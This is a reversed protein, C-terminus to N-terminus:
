AEAFAESARRRPVEVVPPEPADDEANESANASIAGDSGVQDFRVQVRKSVGREQMTVGYLQDAHRMTRKNHTIVIFHSLDLFQRLVGNFREVNAEDLAADVEDLVCFPSPKSEFISMLLAVATMTKEGGSLQSLARPEKGPPKALVEVGSELWDIEGTEENPILRVEARGGGFIKRFMGNPGGFSAQIAEFATKFRERSVDALETILTTLRDRAADLDAVQQALDENKSELDLEEDLAGLNINGLKKIESQLDKIASQQADEDIPESEEREQSWLPLTSALDLGLDELTREELNEVRVEVERRALEVSTWDREVHQAAERAAVVRESRESAERSAEDFRTVADSFLSAAEDVEVRASEIAQTCETLTREHEAIREARHEISRALRDAAARTEDLSLELSRQERQASALKERLSGAAVRATSLREAAHEADRQLSEVEGRLSDLGAREEDLLGALREASALADERHKTLSAIREDGERSEAKAAAAQREMREVEARLREATSDCSAQLRRAEVGTKRASDRDADIAESRANLGSLRERLGDAVARHDALSVELDDLEARTRLLGAGADTASAAGLVVRGDPEVVEGARTVFRMSRAPGAALMLASELDHVVLTDGLLADVAGALREDVRLMDFAPTARDAPLGLSAFRARREAHDASVERLPLLTLRGKIQRLAPSDAVASPSEVVVAQLADGLAAEVAAAHATDVSIFDPLAGLVREFGEEDADRRDLAAKAADGLGARSEILEELTARRSEVRAIEREAEALREALSRSDGALTAAQEDLEGLKLEAARAREAHSNALWEHEDLSKRSADLSSEIEKAANAARERQAELTEIRRREAEAEALLSERKRAIDQVASEKARVGEHREALARQAETRADAAEQADADAQAADRELTRLTESRDSLDAEIREVRQALENRDKEDADRQQRAEALSRETMARRQESSQMVHRASTRRREADERTHLAEQRRAESQQKADEAQELARATETRRAELSRIQSTLGHQRERLEHYQHLALDTKLTRLQEDLEKFLRAKAAQGKVIRLRRETSELQERVRVLNTETRDLKREAELRRARFKAVGAAEEFFVRRDVPNALLMADVKGQEIISYADAGVGTDLFLDRIDKLRAKRGNILYESTGDRHLRREVDVTESDIPLARRRPGRMLPSREDPAAPDHAAEGEQDQADERDGKVPDIVRELTPNEFSLTVSAMGAPKRGASGAFIVDGMSSGRLSKASREGLVWKIADVVNSKGCGNPGVIGTIPADFSFETRDAFSKFGALTLKSLRM